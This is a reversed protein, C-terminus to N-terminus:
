LVVLLSSWLADSHLARTCFEFTSCEQKPQCGEVAWGQAGVGVLIIVAIGKMKHVHFVSWIQLLRRSSESGVAHGLQRSQKCDILHVRGHTDTEYDRSDKVPGAGVFGRFYVEFRCRGDRQFCDGLRVEMYQQIAINNNQYEVYPRLKAEISSRSDISFAKRSDHNQNKSAAMGVNARQLEGDFEHRFLPL